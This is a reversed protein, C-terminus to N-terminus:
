KYKGETVNLFQPSTNYERTPGVRIKDNRYTVGALSHNRKVVICYILTINYSLGLTQKLIQCRQKEKSDKDTLRRGDAPNGIKTKIIHAPFKFQNQFLSFSSVVQFFGYYVHYRQIKHKITSLSM